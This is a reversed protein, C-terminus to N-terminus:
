NVVRRSSSHRGRWGLGDDNRDPTRLFVYILVLVPVYDGPDFGDRLRLSSAADLVLSPEAARAALRGARPSLNNM